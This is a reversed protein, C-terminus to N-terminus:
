MSKECTYIVDELVDIAYQRKLRNHFAQNYYNRLCNYCTTEVDCCNRAINEMSAKLARYIEYKDLLRKVYGAGGPVNDYLLVDYSSHELNVEIIGDIDRREINFYKSIGELFAYMFSLAKDYGTKEIVTLMPITFRIVDTVFKHGLKVAELEDNECTYGRFNKHEKSLSPLVMGKNALCSYGCKNCLYFNSRNMILMQDNEYAQVIMGNGFEIVKEHPVGDGLCMVEGAYTKQPKQYTNGVIVGKFGYKPEIFFESRMRKIGEGCYKCNENEKGSVYVNVKNCNDCKCFYNKTFESIKPLTIYQSKFKDGGAVVESEPAYESIAISLDRNLDYEKYPKWDDSYTELEVVDVPFGYKPIVSFQSLNSLVREKQIRKIQRQYYDAETYNEKSLADTKGKEFDNVLGKISEIFYMMKDSVEAKDGYWKFNYYKQYCQEPIVKKMIFENINDPKSLMYSSFKEIGGNFVFESLNEFYKENDAQKFFTGLCVAMLHRTIIKENNVDFQPPNIVGTIMREPNVFYTYDHSSVGCYTLIYAVGDQTRGARGARQVYNAPTPPVNRMFVTELDGIDIGMEFTTSCSLINVKGEKFRDQLERARDKDIQATHEEIVIKEIKKNKYENRYYNHKLVEDPDIAILEGECDRVVCKNHINHPTLRGCKNCMYFQTNKYNRIIYREAKIQYAELSEHKRLIPSPNGIMEQVLLQNFIVDLIEEAEAANCGCIKQVYNMIANSRKQVTLLSHVNKTPKAQKFMIFNSFRRYELYKEREDMDLGSSYDVSSTTKFVDCIVKILTELDKKSINYKGFAEKVDDEEIVQMINSVDIDFYYLGLGEADYTGDVKLLDRLVTVWAQKESNLVKKTTVVDNANKFVDKESIYKALSVLLKDLSIEEYNNRKLMEWILRKRIIRNHGHEFFVASYSAQQRSDSFTLVRKSKNESKDDKSEDESSKASLKLSFKKVSKREEQEEDIADFLLQGIRVTGEDKGLNLTRVIGGNSKHGCCPCQHINNLADQNKKKKVLYVIKKMSDPCDCKEANLNSAEYICGCLSCLKCEELIDSEVEDENIANELLLYDINSVKIDGYNEYIDVEKNQYLYERSENDRQIVGVLYPSYCYRCNGLEFAKYGDIYNTKTLTIRPEDSLSVYAGALPRVFSHYKLDFLEIGDKRAIKLLDVLACTADISLDLESIIEQIKKSSNKLLNCLRKVRRDCIFLEYLISPIEDTDLEIYKQCISKVEEVSKISKNLALYDDASVSIEKQGEPVDIREAFIIDLIDFNASTLNRAFEVIKKESENKRGLTASTLIFRPKNKALATLRRMLMSLEIGLTGNYTHAEDLVVFRWNDTNKFLVNDKPRILLYELMSYNTFLFHPPNKRIEDRSIKENDPRSTREKPEAYEPTRGTFFGYTVEPFVSLTHRFRDIQDEVLANMPYLFIARIGDTDKGKEMDSLLDNLIPFLFSETKGSGTGTTVIASRGSGINIIAKEQHAYLPRDLNFKKGDPMILQGMRKFLCSITGDSMLKNLSKGRKFPLSLDLYPGKFLEEKDIQEEFVEQLQNNGMMFSSKLYEQYRRKIYESKEIANKKSM